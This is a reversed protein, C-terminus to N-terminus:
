HSPMRITNKYKSKKKKGMWMVVFYGTDEQEM